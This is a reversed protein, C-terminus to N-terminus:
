KEVRGIIHKDPNVAKKSKIEIKPPHKPHSILSIVYKRIYDSKLWVLWTILIVAMLGAQWLWDHFLMAADFGYSREILVVATIRALNGSYIIPIGAAIGLIRKRISVGLTAMILAAYFLMSKWGVCDPGIFFIFPNEIGVKILLGDRATEFGLSKLIWETQGAIVRQAPSLDINLLIILYLPISFLVLRLLFMQINWLRKQKRSFKPKRPKMM